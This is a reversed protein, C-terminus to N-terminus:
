ESDGPRVIDTEEDRYCAEKIADMVENLGGDARLDYLAYERVVGESGDKTAYRVEVWLTGDEDEDAGLVTVRSGFRTFIM